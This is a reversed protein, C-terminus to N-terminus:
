RGGGQVRIIRRAMCAIFGLLAGGRVPQTGFVRELEEKDAGQGLNGVFLTSCPPNDHAQLGGRPAGRGMGQQGQQQQSLQVQHAHQLGGPAGGPPLGLGSPRFEGPGARLRKPGGAPAGGGDQIYMNKRAMNARLAVGDDFSNIM